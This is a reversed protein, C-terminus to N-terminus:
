TRGPVLGAKEFLLRVTASVARGDAARGERITHPEVWANVPDAAVADLVAASLEVEFLEIVYLTEVGASRSFARYEMHAFPREAVRGDGPALGIEEALERVLCDRFSEDPRRHGGVLHLAQWKANWQVLYETGAPGQRCILALAAQSKRM